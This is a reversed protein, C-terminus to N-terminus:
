VCALDHWRKETCVRLGDALITLVILCPKSSLPNTEWIKVLDEKVTFDNGAIGSTDPHSM